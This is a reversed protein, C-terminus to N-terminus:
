RRPKVGTIGWELRDVGADDLGGRLDVWTFRRLFLPLVPASSAGPLLVPIVSMRRRVCEDLCARMEPAEWPGIGDKGVLVAASTATEIVEEIAEQWPRGPVLEWVDLWVKLRRDRLITALEIVAPKDASNHSLFVDFPGDPAANPGGSTVASLAVRPTRVRAWRLRAGGALVATLGGVALLPYSVDIWLLRSRMAFVASLVIAVAILGAGILLPRLGGHSQLLVLVYCVLLIGPLVWQVPVRRIVHDTRLSHAALAHIMVGPLEGYPTAHVDALRESGIIVFRDRMLRVTSDNPVGTSTALPASPAVFQTLGVDPLPKKGALVSAVRYSFSRLSENGLHSTPVMRVRGDAERVGALTGLREDPVCGALTPSPMRRVFSDNARDLVYGLVVAVSLSEARQIWFCLARDMRSSDSMDYDFAIGKARQSVANAILGIEIQRAEDVSRGGFSPLTVVLLDNAAPARPAVAYHWDGLRSLGLVNSPSDDEFGAIVTRKGELVRTGAAVSFFLCYVVFFWLFGGGLVLRRDRVLPMGLAVLVALLPLLIIIAILRRDSVAGVRGVLFYTAALVPVAM